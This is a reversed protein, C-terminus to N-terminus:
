STHRSRSAGPVSAVSRMADIQQLHGVRVTAHLGLVDELAIDPEPGPAEGQGDVGDVGRRFPWGPRCRTRRRGGLQSVEPPEHGLRQGPSDIRDSAALDVFASAGPCATSLIM